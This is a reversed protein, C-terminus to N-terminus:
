SLRMAEVKGNMGIIPLPAPDTGMLSRVATTKGSGSCGHIKVIKSM